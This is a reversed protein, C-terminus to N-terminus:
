NTHTKLANLRQELAQLRMRGESQWHSDHEFNLYRNWTEVASMLQGCDEM